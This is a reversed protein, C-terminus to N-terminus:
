TTEEPEPEAPEVKQIWESPLAGSANGARELGLATLQRTLADALRQREEVLAIFRKKKRDIISDRSLLWADAHDLLARTRCATDIVALKAASLAAEGGLDSVLKSRWEFLDRGGRSTRNIARM